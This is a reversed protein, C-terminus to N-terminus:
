SEGPKGGRPSPRTWVFLSVALLSVVLAAQSAANPLADWSLWGATLLGLASLLKGSLPVAQHEDWQQLSPGFRPHEYLRRRLRESGRTACFAALLLFPTTPLLPLFVGASALGVFLYAMGVWVAQRM